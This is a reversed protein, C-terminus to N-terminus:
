AVAARICKPCEAQHIGGQDHREQHENHPIIWQRTGKESITRRSAKGELERLKDEIRDFAAHLLSEGLERSIWLAFFTRADPPAGHRVTMNVVQWCLSGIWEDRQIHNYDDKRCHHRVSVLGVHWPYSWAPTEVMEREVVKYSIFATLPWSLTPGLMSMPDSLREGEKSTFVPPTETTMKGIWLDRAFLARHLALREELPVAPAAARNAAAADLMEPSPRIDTM